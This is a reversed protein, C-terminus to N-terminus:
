AWAKKTSGQRTSKGAPGRAWSPQKKTGDANENLDRVAYEDRDSVASSMDQDFTDIAKSNFSPNTKHMFGEDADSQIVKNPNEFTDMYGEDSDRKLVKAQHRRLADEGFAAVQFRDSFQDISAVIEQLKSALRSDIKKESSLKELRAASQDLTTLIKNALNKQIAM